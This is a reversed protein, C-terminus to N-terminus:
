LPARGGKVRQWRANLMAATPTEIQILVSFPATPDDVTYMRAWFRLHFVGAGGNAVSPPAPYRGMDGVVAPSVSADFLAVDSQFDYLGPTDGAEEIVVSEATHAPSACLRVGMQAYQTFQITFVGDEPEYRTLCMPASGSGTCFESASTYRMVLPYECAAMRRVMERRLIFAKISDTAPMPIVLTSGTPVLANRSDNVRLCFTNIYGVTRDPRNRAGQSAVYMNPVGSMKFAMECTTRNSSMILPSKDGKSGGYEALLLSFVDTAGSFPCIRMCFEGADWEADIFTVGVLTRPGALYGLLPIGRKELCFNVSTQLKLVALTKASAQADPNDGARRVRELQRAM